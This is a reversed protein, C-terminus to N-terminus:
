NKSEMISKLNELSTFPGTKIVKEKLWNPFGQAANTMIVYVIKTSNEDLYTFNWQAEFDEVKVLDSEIEYSEHPKTVSVITNSDEDFTMKKIAVAYRDTMPFPMDTVTYYITEEATSELLKTQACAYVWDPLSEIQKTYEVIEDRNAEIVTELRMWYREQYDVKKYMSIGNRTEVFDWEGFTVQSSLFLFFIFCFLTKM